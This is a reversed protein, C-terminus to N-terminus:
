FFAKIMDSRSVVPHPIFKLRTCYRNSAMDVGGSLYYLAWCANKLVEEDVNSTLLNRLTPFTPKVKEFPPKPKGGCFKSITWTSKRLMLIENTNNLIEM